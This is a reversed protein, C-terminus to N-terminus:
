EYAHLTSTREYATKSHKGLRYNRSLHVMRFVNLQVSLIPPLYM